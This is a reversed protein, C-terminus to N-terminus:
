QLSKVIDAVVNDRTKIALSHVHKGRSLTM